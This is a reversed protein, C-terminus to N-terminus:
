RCWRVLVNKLQIWMSIQLRRREDWTNFAQALSGKYWHKLSREIFRCKAQFDLDVPAGDPGPAGLRIRGRPKAKEASVEARTQVLKAQLKNIQDLLQQHEPHARM